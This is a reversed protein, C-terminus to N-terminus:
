GTNRYRKLDFGRFYLAESINGAGKKRQRERNRIGQDSKGARAESAVPRKASLM